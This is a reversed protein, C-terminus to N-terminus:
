LFERDRGVATPLQHAPRHLYDRFPGDAPDQAKIQGADPHGPHADTLGDPISNERSAALRSSDAVQFRFLRTTYDAGNASSYYFLDMPFFIVFVRSFM